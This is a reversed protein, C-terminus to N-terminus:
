FNGTSADAREAMAKASKRRNLARVGMLASMAILGMFAPYLFSSRLDIHDALMGMFVGVTAGGTSSGVLLMTSIRGPNEPFSDIAVSMALPWAPGAILGFLCCWLYSTWAGPVIVMLLAMLGGGFCCAAAIAAKNKHIRSALLRSVVMGIGVIAITTSAALPNEYQETFYPKAYSNIGSEVSSYALSWLILLLGVPKLVALISGANKPIVLPEASAPATPSHMWFIGGAVVLSIITILVYLARWSVGQGLLFAMMLPGTVSGASYFMEAIGAYRSSHSPDYKSLMVPVIAPLMTGSFGMLMLGIILGIFNPIVLVLLGGLAIAATFGGTLLRQDKKDIIGGLLVASCLGTIFGVSSLAGMATKNMQYEEAIDLLIFQQGCVQLGFIFMTLYALTSFLSRSTRM